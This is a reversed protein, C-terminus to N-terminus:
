TPTTKNRALKHCSKSLSRSSRNKEQQELAHVQQEQQEQQKRELAHVAARTQVLERQLEQLAHVAHVSIGRYDLSYDGHSTVCVLRPDLKEVEQAVFGITADGTSKIVYSVPQLASVLDAGSRPPLPEIHEKTRADSVTFHQTTRLRDSWLLGAVSM